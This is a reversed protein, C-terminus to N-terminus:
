ARLNQRRRLGGVSMLGVDTTVLENLAQNVREQMSRHPGHPALGTAKANARRLEPPRWLAQPAGSGTGVPM